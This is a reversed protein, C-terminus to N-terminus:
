VERVRGGSARHSLGAVVLIVGALELGTRLSERLGPLTDSSVLEDWAAFPNNMTVEYPLLVSQLASDIRFVAGLVLLVAGAVVWPRRVAVVAVFVAVLGAALPVSSLVGLAGGASWPPQDTDAAAVLLMVAAIRITTYGAVLAMAVGGGLLVGRTPLDGRTALDGRAPLGGALAAMLLLTVVLLMLAAERYGRRAFDDILDNRDDFPSVTWQFRSGSGTGDRAPMTLMAHVALVVLAAFLPLNRGEAAAYALLLGFAAVAAWPLAPASALVGFAHVAALFASVTLLLPRLRM